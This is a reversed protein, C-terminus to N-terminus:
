RLRHHLTASALWLEKTSAGTWASLTAGVHRLDYPRLEAPVDVLAKARHWATYFTPRRLAGGGPGTFM